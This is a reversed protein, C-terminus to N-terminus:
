HRGSGRRDDNCTRRNESLQRQLRAVRRKDGHAKATSIDRSIYDRQTQCSNTPRAMAWSSVATLALVLLVQSLKM